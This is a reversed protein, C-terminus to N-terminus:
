SKAPTWGHEFFCSRNASNRPAQNNDVTMYSPPIYQGGTTYCNSYYGAGSCQTQMPTTYGAMILVQEPMPPFQSYSRSQCASKTAEFEAETAGPKEWKTACAAILPMIALALVLTLAPKPWGETRMNVERYQGPWVGSGVAAYYSHPAGAM